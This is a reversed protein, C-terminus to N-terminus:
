QPVIFLINNGRVLLEDFTSGPERNVFETAQTLIINMFSDYEKLTGKYILGDKLRIEITGGISQQLARLPNRSNNYAM